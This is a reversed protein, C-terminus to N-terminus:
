QWQKLEEYNVILVNLYRTDSLMTVSDSLSIIFTQNYVFNDTNFNAPLGPFNQIANDRYYHVFSDQNLKTYVVVSYFGALVANNKINKVAHHIKYSSLDTATQQNSLIKLQVVFVLALSLVISALGAYIGRTKLQNETINKM